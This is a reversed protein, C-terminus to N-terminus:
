AASQASEQRRVWQRAHETFAEPQCLSSPDFSDPIIAFESNPLASHVRRMMSVAFSSHDGVLCLTPIQCERLRDELQVANVVRRQKILDDLRATRFAQVLNEGALPWRKAYVTLIPNLM